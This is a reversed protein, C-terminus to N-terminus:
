CEDPTGLVFYCPITFTRTRQLWFDGFSIVPMQLISTFQYCLRVEAWRPTGSGGHGNNAPPAFESCGASIAAGLSDQGGAHCEDDQGDHICIMVYPMGTCTGTGTNYNSNPLEQTEACVARAVKAHLAAYYGPDTAPPPAPDSLYVPPSADSGPPDSLYENAALEAGNRAASEIIVSTAFIRGFDGIAVVLMLLIPVVLIFEVLSQGRSTVSTRTPYRRVRNWLASSILHASGRAPPLRYYQYRGQVELTM